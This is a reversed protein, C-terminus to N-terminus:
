SRLASLWGRSLWWRCQDKDDPLFCPLTRFQDPSADRRQPPERIWETRMQESQLAQVL